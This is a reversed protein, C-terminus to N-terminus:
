ASPAAPVAGLPEASRFTIRTTVRRLAHLVPRGLLSLGVVTTVARGLDWGLSTALSYGAFRGVNEVLPAGAIFSLQTDPGLQMPWFALNMATGFLLAGMAGYGALLAIEARGRVSRPLLGAGLGLWAAAIMQFPLWPGVGGTVLASTLLTTAGLAFGFGAGLARGGLLITLFVLEVGAAGASLPRLVAGLASLLALVAVARVDLGGDVLAVGLVLLVAVLTGALLLPTTTGDTLVSTAGVLLPWAFVLVTVVAAAALVVASRATLPLADTKM